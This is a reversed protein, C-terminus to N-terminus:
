GESSLRTVTRSFWYNILVSSTYALSPTAVSLVATPQSVPLPPHRSPPSLKGRAPWAPQSALCEQWAPAARPAAPPQVAVACLHLRVQPRAEQGHDDHGGCGGPPRLGGADQSSPPVPTPTLAPGLEQQPGRCSPRKVALTQQNGMLEMSEISQLPPLFGWARGMWTQLSKQQSCPWAPPPPSAPLSSHGLESLAPYTEVRGRPLDQSCVGAMPHRSSGQRSVNLPVSAAVLRETPGNCWLPRVGPLDKGSALVKGTVSQVWNDMQWSEPKTSRWLAVM